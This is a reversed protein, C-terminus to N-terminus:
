SSNVFKEDMWNFRIIDLINNNEADIVLLLGFNDYSVALSLKINYKGNNFHIPTVQSFHGSVLGSFSVGNRMINSVKEGVVRASVTISEGGGTCALESFVGQGFSSMGVGDRMRYIKNSESTTPNGIKRWPM